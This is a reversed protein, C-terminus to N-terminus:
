KHLSEIRYLKNAKWYKWLAKLFESYAIEKEGVIEKITSDNPTIWTIANLRRKTKVM